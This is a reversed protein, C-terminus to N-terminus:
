NSKPKAYLGLIAVLIVGILALYPWPRTPKSSAVAASQWSVDAEKEIEEVLEIKPQILVPVVEAQPTDSMFGFSPSNNTTPTQISTSLAAIHQTPKLSTETNNSVKIQGPVLSDLRTEETDYIAIVRGSSGGLKSQNITITQGPLIISRPPFELLESGRLQYGSIDIEYPSNNNVQVDGAQNTTLSIEVPLITIEYRAVQEQRKFGAYTTVVYTGAYNYVHAPNQQSSLTSGDGFNWEYQLSDILTDGIGSSEIKFNIVQNVYGVSQAAIELELSTDPLTLKTTEGTNLKKSSSNNSTKEQNKEEDEAVDVFFVPTTQILGKGPTAVATVWGSSNYQATEKTVNDGGISEWDSGGSVQDVLSGDDKILKLTAGTNVLAGTYVLFASGLASADSTRELVSYSNSPMIGSLDVSLNMGDTLQWGNVNVSTGNNHLEIWEHNASDVSGMWAVESIYVAALSINPLLLCLIGLLSLKM